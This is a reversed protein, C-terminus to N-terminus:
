TRKLIVKWDKPNSDTAIVRILVEDDKPVRSPILRAANTSPHSFVYPIEVERIEGRIPSGTLFLEKM